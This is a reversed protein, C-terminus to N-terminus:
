TINNHSGRSQEGDASRPTRDLQLFETPFSIKQVPSVYDLVKNMAMEMGLKGVSWLLWLLWLPWSCDGSVGSEARWEGDM